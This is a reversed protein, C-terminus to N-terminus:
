DDKHCIKTIICGDINNGSVKYKETDKFNLEVEADLIEVFFIKIINDKTKFILPDEESYIRIYEIYEELSFSEKEIIESHPFGVYRFHWPEESIGTISEKGKKYRQIFGYKTALNRFDNYVGYYPFSPCLIDINPINKGLDISLGTHHESYSPKAIYSKTFKEGNEILSDKYIKRQEEVSRFGSVPIIKELADLQVLIHNLIVAPKYELILEKRNINIPILKHVRHYKENLSYKNNILILKGSYINDEKLKVKNM